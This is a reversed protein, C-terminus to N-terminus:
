HHRLAWPKASLNPPKETVVQKHNHPINPSQQSMNINMGDTAKLHIVGTVPTAASQNEVANLSQYQDASGFRNGAEGRFASPKDTNWRCRWHRSGGYQQPRRPPQCLNEVRPNWRAWECTQSWCGPAPQFTSRERGPLWVTARQECTLVPSVTVVGPFCGHRQAVEADESQQEKQTYPSAPGRTSTRRPHWPAPLLTPVPPLLQPSGM